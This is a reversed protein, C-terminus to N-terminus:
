LKLVVDKIIFPTTKKHIIETVLFFMIYMFPFPHILYFIFVLILYHLFMNIIKGCYIAGSVM